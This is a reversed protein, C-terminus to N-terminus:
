LWAGLILGAITLSVVDQSVEILWVKLAKYPRNQNHSFMRHSFSGFATFGVALLFGALAGTAPNYAITTQSLLELVVALTSVQVVAAVFTGAFMLATEGGTMEVRETPMERGQAKMWVPYFTKPGFWVAGVIFFAFSAVFVALWNISFTM